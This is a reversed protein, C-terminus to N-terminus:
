ARHGCQRRRRPPQLRPERRQIQRRASWTLGALPVARSVQLHSLYRARRQSPLLRQPRTRHHRSQPQWRRRQSGRAVQIRRAQCPRRTQRARSKRRPGRQRAQRRRRGPLQRRRKRGRPPSPRPKRRQQQGTRPPQQQGTQRPRRATWRPRRGARRPWRTRQRLQLTSRPRRLQREHQDGGGDDPQKQGRSKIKRRHRSEGRRQREAQRQTKSRGSAGQRSADQRGTRGARAAPERRPEDGPDPVRAVRTDGAGATSGGQRRASQVAPARGAAAVNEDQRAAVPRDAAADIGSLGAAPVSVLEPGAATTQKGPVATTPGFVEDRWVIVGVILMLLAVAALGISVYVLTLEGSVAGAILLGIAVAVVSVIAGFRIM